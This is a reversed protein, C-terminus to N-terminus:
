NDEGLQQALEESRKAAATIAQKVLQRLDGAEFTRLAQETTGGPSTVRQRLTACEDSSELAMKTTGFATQLTLLRASEADLGLERAATEMAEMFLFFYAPGSGSLATVADMQQEDKIWLAVGVARMITEAINRQDDSVKNNAYLATAGTQILAPTNPMARVIAVDNGLWRNIDQERVGAAISVVLPQKDQVSDRIEEAVARLGQPKVALILIDAAETAESNSQCVTVAFRKQLKALQESNVDAINISAPTKDDALLGGILSTAMNGAGIFSINLKDM